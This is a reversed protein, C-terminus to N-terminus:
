AGPMRYINTGSDSFVLGDHGVLDQLWRAAERRSISIARTGQATAWNRTVSTGPPINALLWDAYAQRTTM